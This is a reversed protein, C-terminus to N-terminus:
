NNLDETDSTVKNGTPNKGLLIAYRYSHVRMRLSVAGNGVPSGDGGISAFARWTYYSKISWQLKM